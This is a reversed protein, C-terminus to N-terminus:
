RLTADDTFEQLDDFCGCRCCFRISGNVAKPIVQRDAWVHGNRWLADSVNGPTTRENGRRSRRQRIAQNPAAPRITGFQLSQKGTAKIERQEARVSIYSEATFHVSRLLRRETMEAHDWCPTGPPPNASAEKWKFTM